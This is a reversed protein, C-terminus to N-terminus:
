YNLNKKILINKYLLVFTIIFYYKFSLNSFNSVLYFIQSNTQFLKFLINNPWKDSNKLIVSDNNKLSLRNINGLIYEFQDTGPQMVIYYDENESKHRMICTHQNFDGKCM